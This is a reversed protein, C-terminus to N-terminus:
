NIEKLLVFIQELKGKYPILDVAEHEALRITSHHILYLLCEVAKADEITRVLSIQNM